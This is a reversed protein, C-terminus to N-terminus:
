QLLLQQLLAVVDVALPGLSHRSLLVERQLAAVSAFSFDADSLLSLLVLLLVLLLLVVVLLLLLLLLLNRLTIRFFFELIYVFLHVVLRLLLILIDVVWVSILCNSIGGDEQLSLLRTGGKRPGVVLTNGRYHREKLVKDPTIAPSAM